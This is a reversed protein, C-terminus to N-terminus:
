YESIRKELEKQEKTLTDLELICQRFIKLGNFVEIRLTDEHISSDLTTLREYLRKRDDDFYILPLMNKMQIFNRANIRLAM